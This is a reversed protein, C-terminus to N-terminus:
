PPPAERPPVAARARVRATQALPATPARENPEPAAALPAARDDGATSAEPTGYAPTELSEGKVAVTERASPGSLRHAWWGAGLALALSAAWALPLAARRRPAPRGPARPPMTAKRALIEEFPPVPLAPPEAAALIAAAEDRLRRAEELRARCDACAALHCEVELAEDGGEAHLAGDLWAHLLGEDVHSM